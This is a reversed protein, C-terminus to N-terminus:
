AWSVFGPETDPEFGPRTSFAGDNANSPLLGDWEVESLDLPNSSAAGERRYTITADDVTRTVSTQGANPNQVKDVVRAVEVDVVDGTELDGAEISEDLDAGARRFGRRITREVRELWADWQDSEADSSAPRGLETAVDLVTAFAM